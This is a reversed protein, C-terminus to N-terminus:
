AFFCHTTVRSAGSCAKHWLSQRKERCGSEGRCPIIILRVPLRTSGTEAVIKISSESGDVNAKLEVTQNPAIVADVISLDTLKTTDDQQSRANGEDHEPIGSTPPLGTRSAGIDVTKAILISGAPPEPIETAPSTESHIVTTSPQIGGGDSDRIETSM